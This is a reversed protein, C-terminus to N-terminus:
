GYLNIRHKRIYYVSHHVDISAHKGNEAHHEKGIQSPALGARNWGKVYSSM